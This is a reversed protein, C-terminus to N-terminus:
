FTYCVTMRWKVLLSKWDDARGTEDVHRWLARLAEINDLIARECGISELNSACIARDAESIAVTGALFWVMSMDWEDLHPHTSPTTARTGGTTSVTRSLELIQVLSSQVKAAMAGLNHVDQYLQILIAQRWMEHLVLARVRTMGHHPSQAVELESAVIRDEIAKSRSSIVNRSTVKGEEIDAALNTISLICSLLDVSLSTVYKYTAHPNDRDDAALAPSPTPFSGDFIKCRMGRVAAVDMIHAAALAQTMFAVATGSTATQQLYGVDVNLDQLQQLLPLSIDTVCEQHM